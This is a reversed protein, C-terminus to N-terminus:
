KVSSSRRLGATARAVDVVRLALLDIRRAANHDDVAPATACAGQHGADGSHHGDGIIIMGQVMMMDHLAKLTTEQGGFRAAGVAIAAGVTNLLAKETRLKRTKDWFGKLQASVTGFYVPSAAIVADASALQQFAHELDSGRYCRGPCPSACARCYPYKQSAVLSAAHLLEVAPGSSRVKELAMNLLFATNGDPNPSGNLGIILM